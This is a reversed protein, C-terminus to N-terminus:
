YCFYMHGYIYLVENAAVENLLNEQNKGVQLRQLIRRTAGLDAEVEKIEEEDCPNQKQLEQLRQEFAEIDDKIKKAVADSGENRLLAEKKQHISSRLEELRSLLPKFNAPVRAVIAELDAVYDPIEKKKPLDADLCINSGSQTARGKKATSQLGGQSAGNTRQWNELKRELGGARSRCMNIVSEGFRAWAVKHGGPDKTAAYCKEFAYCRAFKATIEGCSPPGQYVKHFLLRCDDAWRPQVHHLYIKAKKQYRHKFVSLWQEDPLDDDDLDKPLVGDMSLGYEDHLEEATYCFKSLLPFEDM